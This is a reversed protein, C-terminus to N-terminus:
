RRGGTIENLLLGVLKMPFVMAGIFGLGVVIRLIIDEM